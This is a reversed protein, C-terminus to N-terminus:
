KCGSLCRSLDDNCDKECIIMCDYWKKCVITSVCVEGCRLKYTIICRICALTTSLCSVMEDYCLLWCKRYCSNATNMCKNYDDESILGEIDRNIVPNNRVYTYVDKLLQSVYFLEAGLEHSKIFPDVEMYRGTESKYWRWWNYNLGTESIYYQGPFRFNNEINEVVINVRGFPEYDAKLEANIVKYNSILMM